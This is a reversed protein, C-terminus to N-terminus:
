HRNFRGNKHTRCPSPDLGFDKWFDRSFHLLNESRRVIGDNRYEKFNRRNHFLLGFRVKNYNTALNQKQGLHGRWLFEVSISVTVDDFKSQDLIFYERFMVGCSLVVFTVKLDPLCDRIHHMLLRNLTKALYPTGNRTALTPYKSQLFTAEDKLSDQISKNDIIDQQSRNVVGIIGLKVPIM